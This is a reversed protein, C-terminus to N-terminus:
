KKILTKGVGIIVGIIAGIIPLGVVLWGAITLEMFFFIIGPPSTSAIISPKMIGWDILTQWITM